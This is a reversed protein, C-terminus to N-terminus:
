NHSATGNGNKGVAPRVGGDQVPGPLAAGAGSAALSKAALAHADHGYWDDAEKVQIAVNNITVGAAPLQDKQNQGEMTALVRLGGLSVDPDADDIHEM